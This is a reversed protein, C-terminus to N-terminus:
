SRTSFQENPM